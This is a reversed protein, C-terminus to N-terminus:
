QLRSLRRGANRSTCYERALQQIGPRAACGSGDRRSCSPAHPARYRPADAPRIQCANAGPRSRLELHCGRGRQAAPSPMAIRRELEVVSGGSTAPLEVIDTERRCTRAHRAAYGPRSVALAAAPAPHPSAAGNTLGASGAKGVVLGEDLTCRPPTNRRERLHHARHSSIGRHRPDQRQVIGFAPHRRRNVRLVRGTEREIIVSRKM